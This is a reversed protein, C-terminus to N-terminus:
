AVSHGWGDTLAANVVVNRVKELMERSHSYGIERRFALQGVVIGPHIKLRAAFGKISEKSYLPRVRAIFGSLESPPILLTEAFADAAREADPKESTQIASDGVLDLDIAIPTNLGDRQQVHGLEHALAFWFSDIRDYRLSLAIVPRREDLWLCVGDIRTSALHEVILFRIGGEALVRPVHRTEARDRFLTKLKDIAIRFSKDSFLGAEVSEALTQVRRVWACQAPTADSTYSTSKKAAHPLEQIADISDVDFFDCLSAELKGVDKTEAIWRRRQMEKIPALEFLKARRSVAEDRGGARNLQYQAELNMWLEPSTGLAQALGQATEPTISRKGAVIENVLKVPRGLIEALDTQSWDRAELEERLIEGPPFVPAANTSAMGEEM